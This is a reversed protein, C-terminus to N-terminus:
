NVARLGNLDAKFAMGVIDIGIRTKKELFVAGMNDTALEAGLLNNLNQNNYGALKVKLMNANEELGVKELLALEESDAVMLNAWFMEEGSDRKFTGTQYDMVKVKSPISIVVDEGIAMALLAEKDVKAMSIKAM